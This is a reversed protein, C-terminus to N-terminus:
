RLSARRPVFLRPFLPRVRQDTLWMRGTERLKRSGGSGGASAAASPPADPILVTLEVGSDLTRITLEHPLPIPSRAPSLMVCNLAM